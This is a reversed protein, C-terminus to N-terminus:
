EEKESMFKNFFAYGGALLLGWFLGSNEDDQVKGNVITNNGELLEGLAEAQTIDEKNAYDKVIEYHKPKIRIKRTEAM